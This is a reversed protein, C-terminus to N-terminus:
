PKVGIVPLHTRALQPALSTPKISDIADGLAALRASAAATRGLLSEAVAALLEAEAHMPGSQEISHTFITSASLAAALAADAENAYLLATARTLWLFAMPRSDPPMARPGVDVAIATMALARQLDMPEHLASDGANNAMLALLGSDPGYVRRAREVSSSYQARAEAHRGTLDLARAHLSEAAVYVGHEVGYLREALQLHRQAFSLSEAFNGLQRESRAAIKLLELRQPTQADAATRDLLSRVLQTGKQLETDRQVLRSAYRTAAVETLVDDSGLAASADAYISAAQPLVDVAGLFADADLALLDLEIRWRPDAAVRPDARVRTLIAKAAAGEGDSYLAAALRYEASLREADTQASALAQQALARADAFLGLSNHIESLSLLLATLAGGELDTRTTVAHRAQQLVDRASLREGKNRSPDAGEFAEIMIANVVEARTREQVAINRQERFVVAASVSGILMATAMGVAMRHRRVFRSALYWRHSSRLSIPRHELVRTLDDVLAAASAYRQEPEKKLAHLVIRDLDGRLQAGPYPLDPSANDSPARPMEHAIRARAAAPPLGALELPPRGTLFEYLLAGLAYIDISVGETEGDLQEPAAYRLSFYHSGPATHGDILAAQHQQQISKAIGFDLLKPEGDAGVIVNGPKLDRHVVLQRHAYDVAGAIKILLKLRTALDLRQAQAYELMPTGAIYEMAFFPAGDACEGADVFHAVHPHNLKALIRRERQFRRLLERGGLAGRITKIAVLQEVRGDARSGLYVRGMGGSGLVRDIRFAGVRTGPALEPDAARNLTAIAPAPEPVARAAAAILGAVMHLLQHDDDCASALEASRQEPPLDVIRDFIQQARQWREGDLAATM